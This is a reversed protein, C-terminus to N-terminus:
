PTTFNFTTSWAVPTGDGQIRPRVRWFYGAGGELPFANPISYSNPPSSAAGHRLEWYLFPAGPENRFTPDRSVQVEYYFVSRDANSWELTPNLSSVSSTVPSISSSSATATRFTRTAWPSWDQESLGAWPRTSTTTRVRWFYTMGPLMVYNGEISGFNPALVNYSTEADRILNIGPGDAGFPTVQIQYQTTGSPNTWTLQTSLGTLQAGETPGMLNPTPVIVPLPASIPTPAPQSSSSGGGSSSSVPAPPSVGIVTGTLQSLLPSSSTTNLTITMCGNFSLVQQSVLTWVSGNFWYATTGGNLNCNT